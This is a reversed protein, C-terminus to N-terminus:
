HPWMPLVVEVRKSTPWISGHRRRGLPVKRRHTRDDGFSRTTQQSLGGRSASNDGDTPNKRATVLVAARFIGVLPPANLVTM